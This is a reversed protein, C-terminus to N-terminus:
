IDVMVYMPLRTLMTAFFACKDKDQVYMCVVNIVRSM